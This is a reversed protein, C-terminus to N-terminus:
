DWAVGAGSLILRCQKESLFNYEPCEVKERPIHPTKNREENEIIVRILETM